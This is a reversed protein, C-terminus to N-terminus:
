EFLDYKQRNKEPSKESNKALSIFMFAATAVFVLYRIKFIGYKKFISSNELSMKSNEMNIKDAGNVKSIRNVLKARLIKKMENLFNEFLQNIGFLDGNNDFEMLTVLMKLLDFNLIKINETCMKEYIPAIENLCYNIELILQNKNQLNNGNISFLNLFNLKSCFKRILSKQSKLEEFKKIKQKLLSVCIKLKGFNADKCNEANKTKSNIGYRKNVFDIIESQKVFKRECILFPPYGGLHSFTNKDFSRLRFGIGFYKLHLLIKFSNKDVVFNSDKENETLDSLKIGFNLKSTIKNTGVFLILDAM